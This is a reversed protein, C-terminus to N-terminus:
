LWHDWERRQDAYWRAAAVIPMRGNETEILLDGWRSERKLPRRRAGELTLDYRVALLFQRASHASRLLNSDPWIRLSMRLKVIKNTQVAFPPAERGIAAKAARHARRQLRRLISRVHDGYDLFESPRERAVREAYRRAHRMLKITRRPLFWWDGYKRNPRDSWWWYTEGTTSFEGVARYGARGAPLDLALDFAVGLQQAWPMRILRNCTPPNGDADHAAYWMAEISM